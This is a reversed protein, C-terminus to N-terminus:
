ICQSNHLFFCRFFFQLQESERRGGSSTGLFYVRSIDHLVFFGRLEDLAHAVEEETRPVRSFVVLNRFGHPYYAVSLIKTGGPKKIFMEVRREALSQRWYGTRVFNMIEIMAPAVRKGESHFMIVCQCKEVNRTTRYRYKEYPHGTIYVPVSGLCTRIALRRLNTIPTDSAASIGILPVSFEIAAAAAEEDAGEQGGSVVTQIVHKGDAM